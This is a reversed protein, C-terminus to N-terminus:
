ELRRETVGGRAVFGLLAGVLLMLTSSDASSRGNMSCGNGNSDGTSTSALAVQRVIVNPVDDLTKTGILSESSLDVAAVMLLAGAHATYAVTEDAAVALDIPVPPVAITSLVELTTPDLLAVQGQDGAIVESDGISSLAVYAVAGSEAFTLGTPTLGPLSAEALVIGSRLDDVVLILGAFESGILYVDGRTPHAGAFRLCCGTSTSVRTLQATNEDLEFVAGTSSTVFVDKGLVLVDAPGHPMQEGTGVSGLIAGSDQDFISLVSSQACERISPCSARNIAYGRRGDSGLAVATVRGSMPITAAIQGTSLDVKWLMFPAEAGNDGVYAFRGDASIAIGSTDGLQLFSRVALEPADLTFLGQSTTILLHSDDALTPIAWVILVFALGLRAHFRM